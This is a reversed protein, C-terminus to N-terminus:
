PWLLQIGGTPQISWSFDEGARSAPLMAFAVQLRLRDFLSAAVYAQVTPRSCVRKDPQECRSSAFSDVSSFLYGGRLGLRPQVTPGSIPLLEAELGAMPAATVYAGGGGSFSSLGGFDLAAGARLFRTPGAGLRFSIGTELVPGISVHAIATAPVYTLQGILTRGLAGVIAGGEPQAKRFSDIVERLQEHIAREVRAADPTDVGLDRFVFGYACLLRVVYPLEAEGPRQRFFGRPAAPVGPVQPPEAGRMAAACSANAGTEAAGAERAGKCRDYLRALSTQLAARLDLSVGACAAEPRGEGDLVARLCRYPEHHAGRPPPALTARPGFRRAVRPALRDDVFRRAARMGLYFDFVRFNKDFFGFFSALSGSVPPVDAAAIALKDRLGPSGELVSVLESSRASEIFMGLYHTVLSQASVTKEAVTGEPLAPYSTIEPDVYVFLADDPLGGVGRRLPTVFAAAEGRPGPPGSAGLGDSMLRAALGLPQNDFVGGDVFLTRKASRPTCAGGGGTMCHALPVPEFAFPFASSAYLLDRIEAFPTPNEELPLLAQPFGYGVDVYNETRPARGVGEGRLRVVFREETRALRLEPDGALSEKQPALRTTSVGLVVDCSSPLGASFRQELRTTVARMTARSFLAIATTGKPDYLGPFGVDSWTQFLPGQQPDDIKPSCGTLLSLLSNISGASAGTAVKLEVFGPSTKLTELLEHLFGAEYAGLSVGGSVVLALPIPRARPPPEAPIPLTNTPPPPTSDAWALPAVFASAVAVAVAFASSAAAARRTWPVQARASRARCSM